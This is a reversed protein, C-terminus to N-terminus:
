CKADFTIISCKRKYCWRGLCQSNPHVDYYSSGLPVCFIHFCKLLTSFLFIVIEYCSTLTLSPELFTIIFVYFRLIHSSLFQNEYGSTHCKSHQRSTQTQLFPQELFGHQIIRKQFNPFRTSGFHIFM